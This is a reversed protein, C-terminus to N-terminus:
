PHYFGQPLHATGKSSVSCALRRRQGTRAEEQCECSFKTVDRQVEWITIVSTLECVIAKPLICQLGGGSM